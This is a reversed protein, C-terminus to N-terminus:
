YGKPDYPSANFGVYRNNKRHQFGKGPATNYYIVRRIGFPDIYGFSGSKKNGQYTEEEHYARPIYYRFGDNTVSISDYNPNNSISYQPPIEERSNKGFYFKGTNDLPYTPGNHIRYSSDIQNLYNNYDISNEGGEVPEAYNADLPLTITKTTQPSAVYTTSPLTKHDVTLPAKLERYIDFSSPTSSIYNNNGYLSSNIPPALSPYTSASNITHQSIGINTLPVDVTTSTVDVPVEKWYPKQTSTVSLPLTRSQADNTTYPLNGNSYHKKVSKIAQGIPANRGVFVNETKLIRYGNNDAIYDRQRLFGSDDIWAYTGVVTGDELRKEKRYQGSDTQYRFYREPGEDTQIHYQKSSPTDWANTPKVDIISCIVKYWM